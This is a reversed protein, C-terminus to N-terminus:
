EPPRPLRRRLLEAPTPFGLRQLIQRQRRTLQTAQVERGCPKRIILISYSNFARMLTQTTTRREQTTATAPLAQRYQRQLLYYLTLAIMLLFVLSEVREPTHLFVPRVALPGKFESNVQESYAQQKFRTFIEDTTSQSKPVTAVIVSYGDYKEDATVAAADFTFSFQHAPKKCGAKPKPLAEREEGSLPQLEWHFYRAAEKSGFIKGVRRKVADADTGRHGGAVSKQLYELEKKLKDIQKQRQKRVVKEDATSYVFIARVRIKKGSDDDHLRHSVEALEYHEHPLESNATRRRQQEISLYSATKWKLSSYQEDFLTEFEKWPASCIAYGHANKVRLLHGASVTGRDSIMTVKKFPLFKLWIAFQEAIATRGNQNGDVTHGFIPLPGWEDVVTSLGVHIMSSGNPADDTARGRTIHAPGLQGDIRVTPVGDASAGIVPERPVANEYAGTMLLHTPDYHVDRFPVKFEKSVHLAISGLISHRLPFFADLARRFRDDNLKELPIGWLLEAGVKEAWDAINSLAVPSHVRAAILLSLIRGYSYEAQPDAPIHRDIIGAVDMRELLPVILALPGLNRGEVPSQNGYWTFSM